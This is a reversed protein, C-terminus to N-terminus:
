GSKASSGAALRPIPPHGRRSRIPTVDTRGRQASCAIRAKGWRRPRADPRATASPLTSQSRCPKGNPQILVRTAIARAVKGNASSINPVLCRSTGAASPCSLSAAFVGTAGFREDSFCFRGCSDWSRRRLWQASIPVSTALAVGTMLMQMSIGGPDIRCVCLRSARDRPRAREMERAPPPQTMGRGRAAPAGPLSFWLFRCGSPKRFFCFRAM